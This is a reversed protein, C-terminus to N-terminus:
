VAYLRRDRIIAAVEPTVCTQWQGEGRAIMGRIESSSSDVLEMELYEYDAKLGAPWVPEVRVSGPRAFVLWRVKSLLEPLRHWTPLRQWQDAGIIWWIPGCGEALLSEITEITLSPPPRRLERDDAVVFPYAAALARVMALRDGASPDNATFAQKHPSQAAPIFRVVAGPGGWKAAARAIALHGQHPPNFSGGLCITIAQKRDM